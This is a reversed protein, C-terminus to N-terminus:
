IESYLNAHVLGLWDWGTESLWAEQQASETWSRQTFMSVCEESAIVLTWQVVIMTRGVCVCVCVCVCM